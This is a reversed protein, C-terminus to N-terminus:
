RKVPRVLLGDRPEAAKTRAPQNRKATYGVQRGGHRQEEQYPSPDEVQRPVRRCGGIRFDAASATLTWGSGAERRAPEPRCRTQLLALPYSVKSGLVPMM